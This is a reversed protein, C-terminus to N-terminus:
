KRAGAIDRAGSSRDRGGASGRPAPSRPVLKVKGLYFEQKKGDEYWVLYRYKERRLQIKARCYQSMTMGRWNAVRVFIEPNAGAAPLPRNPRRSSRKPSRSPKLPLPCAGRKATKGRHGRFASQSGEPCVRSELLGPAPEHLDAFVERLPRSPVSEKGYMRLSRVIRARADDSFGRNGINVRKSKAAVFSRTQFNRRM